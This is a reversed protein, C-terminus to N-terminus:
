SLGRLSRNGVFQLFGVLYVFYIIVTIMDAFASIEPTTAGFFSKIMPGVFVTAQFIATTFLALSGFFDGVASKFENELGTSTSNYAETARDITDNFFVGQVPKNFESPFAESSAILALSINFLFIFFAIAYFKM